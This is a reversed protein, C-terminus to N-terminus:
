DVKITLPSPVKGKYKGTTRRGGQILVEDVGFQKGLDKAMDWLTTRGVKGASAGQLHLGNLHLRKEAVKFNAIGEVLEDGIKASFVIVDDAKEVIKVFPKGKGGSTADILGFLIVSASVTGNQANAGIEAFSAFPVILSLAENLSNISATTSKLNENGKKQRSTNEPTKELGWGFFDRVSEIYSGLIGAYNPSAEKAESNKDGGGDPAEYITILDDDTIGNDKKWEETSYMGDPDIFRVPNNGAYLYPSYFQEMPDQVHWRGIQPDYFRAGYDYWNLGHEEQLEKENYKAQNTSNNTILDFDMGFPYYHYDQADITETGDVVFDVRVNGLHDRLFYHWKGNGDIYGEDHTVKDLQENGDYVYGDVYKKGLDKNEAGDEDYVKKELKVGTADYIYEIRGKGAFTIRSPLNLQNYEVDTIKKNDDRTMNGNQDYAYEAEQTKSGDTFGKAGKADSVSTLKNGDYKYQLDDILGFQEVSIRGRRSLNDINGNLDYGAKMDFKDTRSYSDGEGYNAKRLRNLADYEFGYARKGDNETEYMKWKMAAINGNYQPTADLGSFGETYNLKMSFLKKATNEADPDNIQTLWGRINYKYDIEQVGKMTGGLVGSSIDKTKHLSKKKLRGLEDYTNFVIIQTPPEPSDGKHMKIDLLRGAHDYRMAKSVYSTTNNVRHEHVTCMVKGVFDYATSRRDWGKMRNDTTTQIVRYKADYYIVTKLFNNSGLVRALSGTPLGKVDPNYGTKFPQGDILNSANFSFNPDTVFDYDDYYNVTLLNDESITTPFCLNTYGKLSGEEGKYEESCINLEMLTKQLDSHTASLEVEGTMVPRNFADYKTFTWTCNNLLPSPGAYFEEDATAKFSFGEALTLSGDGEIKYSQGDYKKVTKQGTVTEIPGLGDRRQKGDQSLVLRDWKDYVMLVPAAGPMKKYILRNYKDYKYVYCLKNIIDQSPVLEDAKALPPVVYRLLGYDDYVYYTSVPVVSEENEDYVYTRKLIIQGLKNKYEEVTHLDGSTWNEDKTVTVYLENELYFNNSELNGHEDTYFFRVKKSANTRLENKITHGNEKTWASGSASVEKVRNLPSGDFYREAYFNDEDPFFGSLINTQQELSGTVYRGTSQESPYAMYEKAVRGLDDYDFIQIVDKKQPSSNISISQIQRGLGDYYNVSEILQNYPLLDMNQSKKKAIRTYVYNRNSLVRAERSFAKQSISITQSKFKIEAYRKEGGNPDATVTFEGADGEQVVVVFWANAPRDADYVATGISSVFGEKVGDKNPLIEISSKLDNIKVKHNGHWLTFVQSGGDNNFSCSSPRANLGSSVIEGEVTNGLNSDPIAETEQHDKSEVFIQQGLTVSYFLLQIFVSLLIYIFNSKM